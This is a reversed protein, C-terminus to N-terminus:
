NRWINASQSIGTGHNVEEKKDWLHEVTDFALLQYLYVNRDREQLRRSVILAKDCLRSFVRESLSM